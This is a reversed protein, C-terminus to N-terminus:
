SNNVSEDYRAESGIFCSTKFAASVPRKKASLSHTDQSQDMRTIKNFILKQSPHHSEPRKQIVREKSVPSRQLRSDHYKETRINPNQVPFIRQVLHSNSHHTHINPNM